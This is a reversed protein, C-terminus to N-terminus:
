ISSPAGPRVVLFLFSSPVLLLSQTLSTYGPGASLYACSWWPFVNSFWTWVTEIHQVTLKPVTNSANESKIKLQRYLSTTEGGNPVHNSGVPHQKPHSRSVAPRKALRASIQLTPQAWPCSILALSKSEWKDILYIFIYISFYKFCEQKHLWHYIHLPQMLFINWSTRWLTSDHKQFLETLPTEYPADAVELFM